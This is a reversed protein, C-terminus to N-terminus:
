ITSEEARATGDFIGGFMFGLAAVRYVQSNMLMSTSKIENRLSPSIEGIENLDNEKYLQTLIAISDKLGYFTESVETLILDKNRELEDNSIRWLNCFYCGSYLDDFITCPMSEDSCYGLKLKKYQKKDIDSEIWSHDILRDLLSLAEPHYIGNARNQLINEFNESLRQVESDVWFELHSFYHYQSKLNTHGGLRAIEVQDYGQLMLSVFAIHRTDGPRLVRKIDYDIQSEHLDEDKKGDTENDFNIKLGMRDQLIELYFNKLLIALSKNTFYNKNRQPPKRSSMVELISKYSILTDTKGYKDSLEIYDNILSYMDESILFKDVIQVKHYSKKQKIRPLKIYHKNEITTVANRVIGCFESPRMPIITTLKFWIVLPYYILLEKNSSSKASLFWEDLKQSFLLVDKSSPIKRTRYKRDLNNYLSSLVDIYDSATEIQSFDLFNYINDISKAIYHETFGSQSFKIKLKEAFEEQFGNSISISKKLSNLCWRVTVVSHDDFLQVVWCKLINEFKEKGLKKNFTVSEEFDDFILYIKQKSLQDIFVWTDDVFHLENVAEEQIEIDKLRRKAEIVSNEINFVDNSFTSIDIEEIDIDIMIEEMELV